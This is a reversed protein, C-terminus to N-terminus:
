PRESSLRLAVANVHVQEHWGTASQAWSLTDTPNPADGEDLPNSRSKDGDTQPPGLRRRSTM